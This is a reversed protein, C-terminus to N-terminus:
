FRQRSPTWPKVKDHEERTCVFLNTIPDNHEKNGDIHHVTEYPKLMRGLHCEMVLRHEYYWGRGFAKPHWPAHVLVYGSENIMREAKPDVPKPIHKRKPV